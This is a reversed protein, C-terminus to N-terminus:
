PFLLSYFEASVKEKNRTQQPTETKTTVTM